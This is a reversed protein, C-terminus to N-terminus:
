NLFKSDLVSFAKEFSVVASQICLVLRDQNFSSLNIVSHPRTVDLVYIDKDEAVFSDEEDLDKIEYIRGNTQNELKTERYDQNKIKYFSTKCNSAHIYFNISTLINSDTHAPVNPTNIKLAFMRFYKRYPEKIIKFLHNNTNEVNFYTLGKGETGYFQFINEQPFECYEFGNKLKKFYM